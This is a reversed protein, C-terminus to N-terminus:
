NKGKPVHRTGKQMKIRATKRRSPNLLPRETGFASAVDRREKTRPGNRPNRQFKQGIKTNRIPKEREKPERAKCRKKIKWPELSAKEGRNKCDTARKRWTKKTVTKKGDGVTM